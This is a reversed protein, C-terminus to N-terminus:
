SSSPIAKDPILKLMLKEFLGIMPFFLIVGLGNFLMHGNAIVHDLDPSKSIFIVLEMFQDFFLLGLSICILNFILHFVGARIAARSGKITALLTDSCTGLEAGLMLSIGGASNILGQKGLLIAIGVTASSSQILLTILGGVWAGQLPNNEVKAVWTEFLTSERLPMVSEEMIFLGFFLMGFFFLIKGYSSYPKKKIFLQMFMGILLPIFSYNSIDLAILQSTFTTGLNAGLIIGISQKFNLAKANILIITLIIVASSSGMLITVMIGVLLSLWSNRTYRHIYIRTKESFFSELVGSLQSISYIFITLGGLFLPLVTENMQM